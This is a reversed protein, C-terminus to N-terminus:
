NDHQKSMEKEPARKRKEQTQWSFTLYDVKRKAVNANSSKKGTNITTGELCTTTDIGGCENDAASACSTFL